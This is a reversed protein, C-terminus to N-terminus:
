KSFSFYSVFKIGLFKNGIGIKTFEPNLLADRRKGPANKTDDVILLLVAVDPNKILNQFYVNINHKERIKNVKNKLLAKDNMELETEPLPIMIEPALTLEGMPQMEGLKKAVDKFAQEGVKLRVKVKKKFVKKINEVTINKINDLITQSYSKPDRRIQNILELVRDNFKQSYEIEEEYGDEEIGPKQNQQETVIVNEFEEENLSNKILNDLENKEETVVLDKDENKKELCNCGM